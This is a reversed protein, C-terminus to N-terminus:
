IDKQLTKNMIEIVCKRKQIMISEQILVSRLHMVTLRTVQGFAYIISLISPQIQMVNKILYNGKPVSSMNMARRLMVQEFNQNHLNNTVCHIMTSMSFTKFIINCEVGCTSKLFYCSRQLIAQRWLLKWEFIPLCIRQHGNHQLLISWLSM